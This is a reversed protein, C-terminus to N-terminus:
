RDRRRNDFRFINNVAEGIDDEESAGKGPPRRWQKRRWVLFAPLFKMYLFAVLMGGLHTEWSTDGGQLASLVNMALIILVMARANIPVPLPFLFFQRDPSIMAFAVLVGMVAGSAGVVSANARGFVGTVYTAMVGLAGCIIYFRYFQRTGLVREVDPGFFFLWLMNLFLHLLGAHLFMYTFPKWVGGMLLADPQFALVRAPFGGPAFLANAPGLMGFPIDLALQAAFTLSSLLIIRQVAQTIRYSSEFRWQTEYVSGSM